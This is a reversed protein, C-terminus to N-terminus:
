QHITLIFNRHTSESRCLTISERYEGSLQESVQLGGLKCDPFVKTQSSLDVVSINIQYKQHTVIKIFVPSQHCKAFPLQYISDKIFYTHFMKCIILAKSTYNFIHMVENGLNKSLFQVICQFSSTKIMQASTGKTHLAKSLFGPGDVIVFRESLCQPLKILIQHTKRVELFLIEMLEKLNSHIHYILTINHLYNSFNITNKIIGQDVVQFSVEMKFLENGDYVIDMLFNNGERYYNFDSHYGVFVTGNLFCLSPNLVCSYSLNTFNHIVLYDRGVFRSFYITYFTLNIRLCSHLRFAFSLFPKWEEKYNWASCPYFHNMLCLFKPGPSTINQSYPSNILLKTMSFELWQASLHCLKLLLEECNFRYNSTNQIRRSVFMQIYRYWLRPQDRLPLRSIFHRFALDSNGKM